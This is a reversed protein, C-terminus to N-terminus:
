PERFSQTFAQKFSGKATDFEVVGSVWILDRVTMRAEGPTKWTSFTVVTEQGAEITDSLAVPENRLAYRSNRITKMEISRLTIPDTSRNRVTMEYAVSLFGRDEISLGADPMQVIRLDLAPSGIDSSSACGALLVLLLSVAVAFHRISFLM